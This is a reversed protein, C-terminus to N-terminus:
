QAEGRNLRVIADALRRGIEADTTVEFKLGDGGRVYVSGHIHPGNIYTGIPDRENHVNHLGFIGAMETLLGKVEANFRDAQAKKAKAVAMTERYCPLLRRTIEGAIEGSRRSRSVMITNLHRGRTLHVLETATPTYEVLEKSLRGSIELRDRSITLFILEAEPGLLVAQDDRRHEYPSPQAQWGEGLMTAIETAQVFVHVRDDSNAM